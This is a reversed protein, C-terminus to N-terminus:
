VRFARSRPSAPLMAGVQLSSQILRETLSDLASTAEDLVLVAPGRPPPPPFWKYFHALLSPNLPHSSEVVLDFPQTQPRPTPPSSLVLPKLCPSPLWYRRKGRVTKM